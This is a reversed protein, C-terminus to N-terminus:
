TAQTDHRVQSDFTCNMVWLMYALVAALVPIVSIVPPGLPGASLWYLHFEEGWGGDPILATKALFAAWMVGALAVTHVILGFRRRRAVFPFVLSLVLLVSAFFVSAGFERTGYERTTFPGLFAGFFYGGGYIGFIAPAIRRKSPLSFYLGLVPATVMVLATLAILPVLLVMPVVGVIVLWVADLALVALVPAQSVLVGGAKGRIIGQPGLSTMALQSLTRGEREAAFRQSALITMVVAVALTVFFFVGTQAQPDTMFGRVERPSSIILAPVIFLMSAAPLLISHELGWFMLERLTMGPEIWRRVLPAIKPLIYWRRRRPRATLRDRASLPSVLVLLNRRYRRVAGALLLGAFSLSVASGFAAGGLTLGRTAYRIPAVITLWSVFSGVARFGGLRALGGVIAWGWNWIIGLGIARAMVEGPKKPTTGSMIGLAGYLIANALCLMLVSAVTAWDSGGFNSAIAVIPVLLAVALALRAVVAALKASLIVWPSAPLLALYVLTGRRRESGISEAALGLAAIPVILGVLASGVALVARGFRAMSEFVAGTRSLDHEYLMEYAGAAFWFAFLCIFLTNEVAFRRRNSYQTLEKRFIAAFQDM